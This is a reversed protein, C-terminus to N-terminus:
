LFFILCGLVFVVAFSIGLKIKSQFFNEIFINVKNKKM